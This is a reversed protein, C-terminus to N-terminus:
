VSSGAAVASSAGGDDAAAAAGDDAASAAGAGGESIATSSSATVLSASRSVEAADGNLSYESQCSRQRLADTGASRFTNTWAHASNSFSFFARKIFINLFVRAYQPLLM